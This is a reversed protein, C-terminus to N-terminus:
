EPYSTLSVRALQAVISVPILRLLGQLRITDHKSVTITQLVVYPPTLEAMVMNLLTLHHPIPLNLFEM